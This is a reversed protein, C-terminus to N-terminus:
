DSFSLQDADQALSIEHAHPRWDTIDAVEWCVTEAMVGLRAKSAELAPAATDLVTLNQWGQELLADVLNSAGGGVDILSSTASAGFRDLARLSPEPTKQYWSVTNPPKAEYVHTWHGADDSRTM